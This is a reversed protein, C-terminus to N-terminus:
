LSGGSSNAPRCHSTRSSPDLWRCSCHVQIRLTDDTIPTSGSAACTCGVLHYLSKPIQCHGLVFNCLAITLAVVRRSSIPLTSLPQAFAPCPKTIVAQGTSNRDDAFIHDDDHRYAACCERLWILPDGPRMYELMFKGSWMFLASSCRRQSTNFCHIRCSGDRVGLEESSACCTTRMERRRIPDSNIARCWRLDIAPWDYFVWVPM